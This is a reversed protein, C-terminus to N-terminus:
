AITEAMLSNVTVWLLCIITKEMYSILKGMNYTQVYGRYKEIGVWDLLKWGKRKGVLSLYENGHYDPGEVIHDFLENGLM